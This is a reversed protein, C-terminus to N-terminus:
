HSSQPNIDRNLSPAFKKEEKPPLIPCCLTVYLVYASM